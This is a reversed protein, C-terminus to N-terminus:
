TTYLPVPRDPPPYLTDLQAMDEDDLQILRANANETVRGINSSKPIPIVNPNTMLYALGIQAITAQHKDAVATLRHDQALRGQDLPCYAMTAVDQEAQWPLLDYEVGRQGLSYYIQNVGCAAGGELAYLAPMDDIDFNSVGWSRILGREILTEFGEITERLPYSGPWHLLYLDITDIGLRKLSRECAAITGARSANSPLVKTVIYLSDRDYHSIAEGTVEEAGGSAYMEATDILTVGLEIGARLAAVDAARGASSSGMKWTGLGLRPALLAQNRSM